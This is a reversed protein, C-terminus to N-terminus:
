PGEVGPGDGFVGAAVLGAVDTQEGFKYIISVTRVRLSNKIRIKKPETNDEGHFESEILIAINNKAGCQQVCPCNKESATPM